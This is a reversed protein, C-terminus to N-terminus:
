RDARTRGRPLRDGHYSRALAALSLANAATGNFVFFVEAGDHEFLARILAAPASPGPTPATVPRTAPM